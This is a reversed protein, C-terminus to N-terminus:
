VTEGKTSMAALFAAIQIESLQGALIADISEASEDATLDRRRLLKTLLAQYDM